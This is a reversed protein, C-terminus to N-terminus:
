IIKTIRGDREVFRRSEAMLVAKLAKFNGVDSWGYSGRICYIPAAKEMVAYDLSIDPLRAYSGATVRRGAKLGRYIAPAFSRFAKLITAARFIFTGSNWLYDGSKVYAAARAADPKEVFREVKAAAGSGKAKRAGPGLKIYGFETSPFSPEIGFVVIADRKRGLLGAAAEMCRLYAAEDRVYHDTPLVAVIADPSRAAIRSAAWAVAPATNRSAPELILNRREIGPMDRRVLGAHARNAVVVINSEPVIASIRRVTNRFLTNRDATVSLFAKPRRDTSLPRLRKGKGGVLVAAYLGAPRKDSAM